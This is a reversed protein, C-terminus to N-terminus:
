NCDLQPTPSIQQSAKVNQGITFDSVPLTLQHHYIHPIRVSARLNGGGGGPFLLYKGHKIVGRFVDVM